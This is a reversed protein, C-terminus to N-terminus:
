AGQGYQAQLTRFFPDDVTYYAAITSVALSKRTVGQYDSNGNITDVITGEGEFGSVLFHHMLGGAQIVAIDGIGIGGSGWTKKVDPGGVGPSMWHAGPM